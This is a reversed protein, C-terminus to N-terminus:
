TTPASPLASCFSTDNPGVSPSDTLTVPRDSLSRTMVPFRCFIPGPDGTAIIAGFSADSGFHFSPLEFWVGAEEGTKPAIPSPRARHVPRVRSRDPRIKSASESRGCVLGPSERSVISRAGSFEPKAACARLRHCRSFSGQQTRRVPKAPMPHRDRAELGPQCSTRM